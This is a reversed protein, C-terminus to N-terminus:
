RVVKSAVDAFREQVPKLKSNDVVAQSYSADIIKQCLYISFYVREGTLNTYM